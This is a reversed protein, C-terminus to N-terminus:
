RTCVIWKFLDKFDHYCTVCIWYYSDLSSYGLTVVDENEMKLADKQVFKKGCFECHDHDNPPIPHYAQYVLEIQQLYKEQGQLRWDNSINKDFCEM